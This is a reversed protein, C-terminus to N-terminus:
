GGGVRSVCACVCQWAPAREIEREEASEEQNAIENQSHPWREKTTTTTTAEREETTTTTIIIAWESGGCVAALAALETFKLPYFASFVKKPMKRTKTKPKQPKRAKVAAIELRKLSHTRTRTHTLFYRNMIIQWHLMKLIYGRKEGRQRESM